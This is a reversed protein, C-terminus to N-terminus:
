SAPAEPPTMAAAASILFSSIDDDKVAARGLRYIAQKVERPLPLWRWHDIAKKRQDPDDAISTLNVLHRYKAAPVVDRMVGLLISAQEKETLASLMKDLQAPAPQREGSLYLSITSTKIGLARCAQTQSWGRADMVCKLSSSFYSM